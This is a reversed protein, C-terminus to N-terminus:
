VYATRKLDRQTVSGRSSTLVTEKKEFANRLLQSTGNDPYDVKVCICTTHDMKGPYKKYEEPLELSPNEEMFKRGAETINKSYESLSNCIDEPSRSTSEIIELLKKERFETKAKNAVFPEVDDWNDQNIHLDRPTKGLYHPDLNDHVGDSMVIIIDNTRVTFYSVVFNRVDPLGGKKYPGLRGGCDSADFSQDRNTFTMDNVSRTKWSYLFVKCDGVNGFIFTWKKKRRKKPIMTSPAKSQKGSSRRFRNIFTPITSSTTTTTTQLNEDIINNDNTDGSSLEQSDIIDTSSQLNTSEETSRTELPLDSSKGSDSSENSINKDIQKFNQQQQHNQENKRPSSKKPQKKRLM